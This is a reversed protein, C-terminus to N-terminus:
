DDFSNDWADRPQRMQHAYAQRLEEETPLRVRRVYVRRWRVEIPPEDGCPPPIARPSNQSTQRREKKPFPLKLQRDDDPM